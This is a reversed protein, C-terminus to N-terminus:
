TTKALKTGIIRSRTKRKKTNVNKGADILLQTGDSRISFIKEGNTNESMISRAILNTLEREIVRKLSRAGYKPDFGKEILYQIASANLKIRIGRTALRHELARIEKAIIEKLDKKTLANFLIIEDLRNLFEPRFFDKVAEMVKDKLFVLNGEEVKEDASFGISQMKQFYEAGLNSTLIIITNRFDVTRGKNDTLVGDDLIQLLINFVDRHAKEVEDFLIVSYPRHRVAETLVGANEYGVYGPPAGVLKSVAHKEM